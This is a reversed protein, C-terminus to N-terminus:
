EMKRFEAMIADINEIEEKTLFGIKYQCFELIKMIVKKTENRDKKLINLRALAILQSLNIEDNNSAEEDVISPAMGFITAFDITSKDNTNEKDSITIDSLNVFEELVTELKQTEQSKTWVYDNRKQYFTFMREFANVITNKLSKNSVFTFHTKYSIWKWEKFEVVFSSDETSLIYMHFLNDIKIQWTTGGFKNKDTYKSVM